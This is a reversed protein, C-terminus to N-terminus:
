RSGMADIYQRALSAADSQPHQRVVRELYKKALETQGTLDYLKGLKFLAAPAKRHNADRQLLKLFYIEAEQYNPTSLALNVEGLWYYANSVYAGDPYESLLQSLLSIAKNFRKAKINEQAQEYLAKEGNSATPQSSVEKEKSENTVATTSPKSSAANLQSVRRDLDLYRDRSSKKFQELTYAQEEVVGRLKQVEQQLQEIQNILEWQASTQKEKTGADLPRSIIVNSEEKKDSVVLVADSSATAGAFLLSLPLVACLSRKSFSRFFDSSTLLCFDRM